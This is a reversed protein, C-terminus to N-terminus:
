KGLRLHYLLIHSVCDVDEQNEMLESDFNTTKCTRMDGEQLGLEKM